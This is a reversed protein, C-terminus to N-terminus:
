SEAFAKAVEVWSFQGDLGLEIWDAAKRSRRSFEEIVRWDNVFALEGSWEDTVRRRRQELLACGVCFPFLASDMFYPRPIEPSCLAFM